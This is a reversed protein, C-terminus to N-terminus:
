RYSCRLTFSAIWGALRWLLNDGAILTALLLFGMWVHAHSATIGGALGDVLLKVAFQAGVSCGVAAVVATVIVAHAVPRARVYRMVFPLPRDAYGCADKM